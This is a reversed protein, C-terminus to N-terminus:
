KYLGAQCYWNHINEKWYFLIRPFLPVLRAEGAIPLLVWIDAAAECIDWFATALLLVMTAVATVALAPVWTICGEDTDGAGMDFAEVTDAGLLAMVWDADTCATVLM